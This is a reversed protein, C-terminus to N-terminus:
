LGDLGFGQEPVAVYSQNNLVVDMHSKIDLGKFCFHAGRGFFGLFGLGM